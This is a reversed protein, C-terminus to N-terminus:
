RDVLVIRRSRSRGDNLHERVLYVGFPLWRLEVAEVARDLGDLVVRGHVDFVSAAVVDALAEPAAPPLPAVSTTIGPSNFRSIYTTPGGAIIAEGLGMSGDMMVNFDGFVTIAGGPAVDLGSIYSQPGGDCYITDHLVWTLQGTGRDFGALYPRSGVGDCEPLPTWIGGPAQFAKDAYTNHLDGGVVIVDGLLAIRSAETGVQMEGTWAMRAWQYLGANDLKQIFRNCCSAPMKNFSATGPGPDLDFPSTTTYSVIGQFFLDGVDDFGVELGTSQGTGAALRHAWLYGGTPSYLAGFASGDSSLNTQSDGPGPDFDSSTGAASGVIAVEGFPSAAVGYVQGFDVDVPVVWDLSFPISYRAVMPDDGFPLLSTGIPDMDPTGFYEGGVVLKHDPTFAAGFITVQANCTTGLTMHSLYTGDLDYLAVFSKWCSSQTSPQMVVTGPGADIDIAGSYVGVIAFRDMGEDFALDTIDLRGGGSSGLAIAWPLAGAADYKAVFCSASLSPMAVVGPGPDVDPTGSYSSFLYANGMADMHMGRKPYLIQQANGYADITGTWEHDPVQGPAAGAGILLFLCCEGLRALPDAPRRVMWRPVSLLIASMHPDHILNAEGLRM